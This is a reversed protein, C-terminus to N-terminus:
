SIIRYKRHRDIASDNAVLSIKRAIVFPTILERNTKGKIITNPVALEYKVIQRECGQYKSTKKKATGRKSYRSV